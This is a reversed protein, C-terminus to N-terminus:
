KNIQTQLCNLVNKFFQEFVYLKVDFPRSGQNKARLVKGVLNTPTQIEAPLSRVLGVAEVAELGADQHARRLVSLEHGVEVGEVPDIAVRLGRPPVCM